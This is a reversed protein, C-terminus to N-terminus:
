SNPLLFPSEPYYYLFNCFIVVGHILPLSTHTGPLSQPLFLPLFPLLVHPSPLLFSPSFLSFLLFSVLFSFYLSLSGLHEPLTWNGRSSLHMVQAQSDFHGLTSLDTGCNRLSTSPVAGFDASLSPM